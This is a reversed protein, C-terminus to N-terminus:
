TKQAAWFDTKTSISIKYIFYLNYITKIFTLRQVSRSIMVTFISLLRLRLNTAQTNQNVVCQTKRKKKGGELPNLPCHLHSM